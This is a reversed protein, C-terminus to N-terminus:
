PRKRSMGTTAAGAWSAVAHGGGGIGEGIGGCGACPGHCVGHLLVVGARQVDFMPADVHTVACAAFRSCLQDFLQKHGGEVVRKQALAVVTRCQRQGRKVGGPAAQHHRGIAMHNRRQKERAAVDAAQGHVAGDVVHGHHTGRRQVQTRAEDDFFAERQSIQLANDLAHAVGGAFCPHGHDRAVGLHHFFALAVTHEDAGGPHTHQRSAHGDAPAIGLHAVNHQQRAGNAVM